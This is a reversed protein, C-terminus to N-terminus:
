IRWIHRLDPARYYLKGETKVRTLVDKKVLNNAVTQEREDLASKALGDPHGAVKSLLLSEENSILTSFGSPLDIAKM